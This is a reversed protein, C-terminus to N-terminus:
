APRAGAPSLRRRLWPATALVFLGFVWLRQLGPADQLTAGQLGHVAYANAALDTVMIACALDVGGVRGRLLLM